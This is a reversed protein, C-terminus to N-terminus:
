GTTPPAPPRDPKYRHRKWLDMAVSAPRQEESLWSLWVRWTDNYSRFTEIRGADNVTFCHLNTFNQAIGTSFVYTGAEDFRACVRNGDTVYRPILNEYVNRETQAFTLAQRQVEDIGRYTGSFSVLDEVGELTSVIKPDMLDLLGAWDEALLCRYFREVAAGADVACLRTPTILAEDLSHRFNLSGEVAEATFAQFFDFSNNWSVFRKIRGAEDFRWEHVSESSFGRGTPAAIGEERLFLMLVLGSADKQAMSFRTHFQPNRVNAAYLEVFKGARDGGTWTGGFPLNEPEGRIWIEADDALVAQLAEPTGTTMAEYARGLASKALPNVPKANSLANAPNVVPKEM